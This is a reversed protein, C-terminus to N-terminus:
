GVVKLGATTELGSTQGAIDRLEAYSPPTATSRAGNRLIIRDSQARAMVQDMSWANMIILHAPNGVGITGLDPLRMIVAPAPGVLDTASAIPHDLHCIRVAQRFTDLMDHDGYAYFPDRCNDGAAAVRVGAARLETVPTVGRWRPTRGAERDQLYMNVPPLTV